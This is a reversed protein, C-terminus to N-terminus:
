RASEPWRVERSATMRAGDVGEFTAQVVLV